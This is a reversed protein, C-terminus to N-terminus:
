FIKLHVSHLYEIIDSKSGIRNFFFFVNEESEMMEENEVVHSFIRCMKRSTNTINRAWSSKKHSSQSENLHIRNEESSVGHGVTFFLIFNLRFCFFSFVVVTQFTCDIANINIKSNRRQKERKKKCKNQTSRECLQWQWRMCQVDNM